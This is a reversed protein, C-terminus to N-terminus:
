QAKTSMITSHRYKNPVPVQLNVRPSGICYTDTSFVDVIEDNHEGNGYLTREVLKSQTGM